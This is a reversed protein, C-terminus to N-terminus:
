LSYAYYQYGSNQASYYTRGASSPYVNNWRTLHGGCYERLAKIGKVYRPTARVRAERIDAASMDSTIYVCKVVYTKM